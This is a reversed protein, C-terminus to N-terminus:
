PSRTARWRVFLAPHATAAELFRVSTRSSGSGDYLITMPQWQVAAPDVASWGQLDSSTELVYDLWIASPRTLQVELVRAGRTDPLLSARLATRMNAATPCTGAAFEALNDQGDQDPDDTPQSGLDGFYILEWADPLQDNDSDVIRAADELLRRLALQNETVSLDHYGVSYVSVLRGEPDVIRVDDVAAGWTTWVDAGPLDQLWPLRRGAIM